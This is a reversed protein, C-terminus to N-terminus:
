QEAELFLACSDAQPAVKGSATTYQILDGVKLTHKHSLSPSLPSRPRWM